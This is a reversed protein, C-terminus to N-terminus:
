GVWLRCIMIPNMILPNMRLSVSYTCGQINGTPSNPPWSFAEENTGIILASALFYGRTRLHGIIRRITFRGIMTLCFAFLWALLVWGRALILDPQLFGSVIIFLFGTTCARFILSYEKTGSVLNQRNYLGSLAFITVWIPILIAVVSMYFFLSSDVDIAFIGLASEFRILYSIAFALSIMVVDTVVLGLTLVSWERRSRRAMPYDRVKFPKGLLADMGALSEM